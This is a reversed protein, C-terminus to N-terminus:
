TGTGLKERMNAFFQAALEENSGTVVGEIVIHAEPLDELFRSPTRPVIGARRRRAKAHTITLKKQARTIGVYLLRREEDVGHGEDIVRRHPLLGEELGVLYVVPFELGKSAHLSMLTVRGSKTTKEGDKKKERERRREEEDLAIRDLFSELFPADLDVVWSAALDPSEKAEAVRELWSAVSDLVEDLAESTKEKVVLDKEADVVAQYGASKAAQLLVEIPDDDDTLAAMKARASLLPQAFRRLRTLQEPKLQGTLGDDVSAELLSKETAKAHAVITAVAKDGLGRAPLNVVRRFSIEDFPRAILTLYALVNKVDRREFFEQGGIVRYPVGMLRLQEEFLRSQPNARYLLAIDDPLAEGSDILAAIEKAVTEAEHDGDDCPRVRVKEGDGLQPRLTKDKRASNKAIVANASELIHATSRYNEELKVVACPAWDIDFRLINEIASGRFGYIAQDDDGVVVINKHPGVLRRVLEDQVPNTDQYEDILVHQLVTQYRKKVDPAHELLEVALLLLDDFDVAQLARLHRRYSPYLRRALLHVPDSTVPAQEASLGQNKLWGIRSLIQAPKTEGLDVGEEKAVRLLQALQDGEDLITFQTSLDIRHGDRRLMRAALAHFTSVTIGRARERGVIAFLRERMEKAAKNTFTVALIARGQVGESLLRAIRTTVVRTKGSGAGALVLLPGGQHMVASRQADNLGALSVM